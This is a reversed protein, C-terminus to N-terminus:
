KEKKNITDADFYGNAYAEKLVNTLEKTLSVSERKLSKKGETDLWECFLSDISYPRRSIEWRVYDVMLPDTDEIYIALCDECLHTISEGREKFYERAGNTLTFLRVPYLPHEISQVKCNMGDCFQTLRESM